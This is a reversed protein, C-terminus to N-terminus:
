VGGIGTGLKFMGIFLILPLHSFTQIIIGIGQFFYPERVTKRILALFVFFQL